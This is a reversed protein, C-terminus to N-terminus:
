GSSEIEDIADLWMDEDPIVYSFTLRTSGNSEAAHWFHNNKESYSGFYGAKCTWEGKTDPMVIVEDTELDLYKFCGGGKESYTFVLNNGSVNWNTHWGIYGDEPYFATLANNRAGIFETVNFLIDAIKDKFGIFEPKKLFEDSLEIGRIEEPYGEHNYGKAKLEDLYERTICYFDPDKKEFEKMFPALDQEYFWDSFGYLMSKLDPNDLSIKKMIKDM